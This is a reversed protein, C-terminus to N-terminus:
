LYEIKYIIKSRNTMFYSIIAFYHFFIYIIDYCKFCQRGFLTLFRSLYLFKTSYKTKDDRDTLIKILQYATLFFQPVFRSYFLFYWLNSFSSFSLFFSSYCFRTFVIPYFTLTPNSPLSLGLALASADAQPM